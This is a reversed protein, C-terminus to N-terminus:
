QGKRRDIDLFRRARAQLDTHQPQKQLVKSQPQPREFSEIRSYQALKNTGSRVRGGDIIHKSM